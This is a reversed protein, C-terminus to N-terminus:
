RRRSAKSESRLYGHGKTSEPAAFAHKRELPLDTFARAADYISL